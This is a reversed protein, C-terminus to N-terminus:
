LGKYHVSTKHMRKPMPIWEGFRYTLFMIRGFSALVGVAWPESSCLIILITMKTAVLVIDSPFLTLLFSPVLVGLTFCVIKLVM